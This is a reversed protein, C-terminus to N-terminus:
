VVARIRARFMPTIDVREAALTTVMFVRVVVAVALSWLM